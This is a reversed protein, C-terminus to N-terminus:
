PPLEVVPPEEGSEGSQRKRITSLLSALQDTVGHTVGATLDLKEGYKKPHLKALLWKLSDVELRSRDVMDVYKTETGKPGETVIVGERCKSAVQEIRDSWAEYQLERAHAYRASVGSPEDAIVWGRVTSESPYREVDSGCIARLSEGEAIRAMIEAFIAEDFISPRAM